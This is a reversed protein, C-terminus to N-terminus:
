LSVTNNFDSERDITITMQPEYHSPQVSIVNGVANRLLEFACLMAKSFEKPTNDSSPAFIREKFLVVEPTLNAVIAKVLDQNVLENVFMVWQKEDSLRSYSFLTFTEGTNLFAYLRNKSEISTDPNDNKMSRHKLKADALNAPFREAVIYFAQMHLQLVAKEVEPSPTFAKLKDMREGLATSKDECWWCVEHCLINAARKSSGSAATDKLNVDRIVMGAFDPARYTRSLQSTILPKLQVREFFSPAPKISPQPSLAVHADKLALTQTFGSFIRTMPIYQM